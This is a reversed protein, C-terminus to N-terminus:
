NKVSVKVAAQREPRLDVYAFDKGRQKLDAMIEALRRLKEEYRGSGIRFERDAYVVSLSAPSDAKVRVDAMNWGGRETLVRLLELAATVGASGAQEGARASVDRRMIFPLRGAVGERNAVKEILYGGGDILFRSIGAGLVAVPERETIVMSIRNPLRRHIRVDKVRPHEAARQAAENLDVVFVNQGEFGAIFSRIDKETLEQVGKVDVATIRFAEATTLWRYGMWGGIVASALAIGVLVRLFLGPARKRQKRPGATLVKRVTTRSSM